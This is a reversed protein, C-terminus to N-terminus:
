VFIGISRNFKAKLKKSNGTMTLYNQEISVEMMLAGFSWVQKPPIIKQKDLSTM